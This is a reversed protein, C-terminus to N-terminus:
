FIKAIIVYTDQQNLGDYLAIQNKYPVDDFMLNLRLYNLTNLLSYKGIVPEIQISDVFKSDYQILSIDMNIATPNETSSINNETIYYLRQGIKKAVTESCTNLVYIIDIDRRRDPRPSHKHKKQSPSFISLM